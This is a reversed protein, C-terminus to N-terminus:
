RAFEVAKFAIESILRVAIVRSGLVEHRAPQSAWSRAEDHTLSLTDHWFTGDENQWVWAAMETSQGTPSTCPVASNDDLPIMLVAGVRTDGYKADSPTVVVSRAKEQLTSFHFQGAPSVAAYLKSFKPKADGPMKKMYTEKFIARV